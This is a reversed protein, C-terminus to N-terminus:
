IIDPRAQYHDTLQNGVRLITNTDVVIVLDVKFESHIELFSKLSLVDNEPDLYRYRDLLEEENVCYCEKGLSKLALCLSIQSGIGDADPFEHTTIIVRKADKIKNIIVQRNNSM